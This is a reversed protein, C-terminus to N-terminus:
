DENEKFELIKYEVPLGMIEKPSKDIDAQAAEESLRVIESKGIYKGNILGIVVYIM